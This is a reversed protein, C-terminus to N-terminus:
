RQAVNARRNGQRIEIRANQGPERLPAGENRRLDQVCSGVPSRGSISSQDLMKGTPNGATRRHRTRRPQVASRRLKFQPLVRVLVPRLRRADRLEDTASMHYLEDNDLRRSLASFQFLSTHITTSDTQTTLEMLCVIQCFPLIDSNGRGSPAEAVRGSPAEAVRLRPWESGRGSPWEAVRGSPAEAVRLRPWEAVRLRPAEAVRLRPMYILDFIRSLVCM